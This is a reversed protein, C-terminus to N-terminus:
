GLVPSPDPALPDLLAKAHTLAALMAAPIPTFTHYDEIYVDLGDMVNFRPDAFLKKMASRRITEDVGPAVFRRFDSDTTLLEVDELSPPTPVPEPSQPRIESAAPPARKEAAAEANRKAWRSFFSEAEM